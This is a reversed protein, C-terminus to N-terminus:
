HGKRLRHLHLINKRRLQTSKFHYLSSPFRLGNNIQRESAMNTITNKEYKCTWKTLLNLLLQSYIKALINILTIGRNNQADNIDGKKFICDFYDLYVKKSQTNSIILEFSSMGTKGLMSQVRHYLQM